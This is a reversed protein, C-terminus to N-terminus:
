AADFANMLGFDPNDFILRGFDCRSSLSQNGIIAGAALRYDWVVAVVDFLLFQLRERAPSQRM